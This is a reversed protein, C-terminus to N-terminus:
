RIMTRITKKKPNKHKPKFEREEPLKEKKCALRFLVSDKNAFGALLKKLSDGFIAKNPSFLTTATEGGDEISVCTNPVIIPPPSIPNSPPFLTKSVEFERHKRKTKMKLM